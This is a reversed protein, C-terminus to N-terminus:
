LRLATYSSGRKQQQLRSHQAHLRELSQLKRIGLKRCHAAGPLEPWHGNIPFVVLNAGISM